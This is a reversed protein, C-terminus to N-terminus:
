IGTIAPVMIIVLIIGLMMILPFILKTQAEEGLIKASLKREKFADSLEGVLAIRVDNSGNKRNQELINFLKTYQRLGIRNSLDSLAIDESVGNDMKRISIELEKNLPSENKILSNKSLKNIRTLANKITEGAGIYIAIKTVFSYYENQLIKLRKKFADNKKSKDNLPLLIAILISFAIIILFTYNQKEIYSIKIDTDKIQNPLSLIPSTITDIDIASIQKKLNSLLIESQNLIKHKITLPLIYPNSQYRINSNDKTLCSFIIKLTGKIEDDEDLIDNNIKGDLLFVNRYKEYLDDKYSTDLKFLYDAYIGENSFYSILKLNSRIEDFSKNDGLIYEPLKLFLEDFKLGAENTTYRRSSVTFKIEEEGRGIGKVKLSYELNQGGYTNRKISNEKIFISESFVISLISLFIGAIICIKQRKDIKNKIFDSIKEKLNKIKDINIYKKYNKM